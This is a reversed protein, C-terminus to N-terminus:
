ETCLADLMCDLQEADFLPLSMSGFKVGLLEKIIYIRDIETLVSQRFATWALTKCVAHINLLSLGYYDWRHQSNVGVPSLMRMFYVGNRALAGVVSHVHRKITFKAHIQSAHTQTSSRLRWIWIFSRNISQTIVCRQSLLLKTYIYQNSRWNRRQELLNIQALTTM